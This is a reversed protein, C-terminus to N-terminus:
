QDPYAPSQPAAPSPTCNRGRPPSSHLYSPELVQPYGKAEQSTKVSVYVFFLLSFPVMPSCIVNSVALGEINVESSCVGSADDERTFLCLLFLALESGGVSLEAPSPYIRVELVDFAAVGPSNMHLGPRGRLGPRGWCFGLDAGQGLTRRGRM